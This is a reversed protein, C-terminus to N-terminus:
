WEVKGPSPDPPTNGPEGPASDGNGIEVALGVAACWRLMQDVSISGPDLELASVRKQSLGLRVGVAAQSLRRAKRASQLMRGLQNATLLPLLPTSGM